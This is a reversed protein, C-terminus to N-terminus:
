AAACVRALRAGSSSRADTGESGAARDGEKKKKKAKGRARRRRKKKKKTELRRHQSSPSVM